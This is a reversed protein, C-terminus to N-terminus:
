SANLIDIRELDIFSYEFTVRLVCAIADCALLLQMAIWIGLRRYCIYNVQKSAKSSDLIEDM